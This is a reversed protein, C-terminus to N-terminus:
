FSAGLSSPDRSLPTSGAPTLHPWASELIVNCFNIRKYNPDMRELVDAKVNGFTIGEMPIDGTSNM